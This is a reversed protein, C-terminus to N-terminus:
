RGVDCGWAARPSGRRSFLDRLLLRCLAVCSLRGLARVGQWCCGWGLLREQTRVGVLLWWSAFPDRAVFVRGCGDGVAADDCFHAALRSAKRVAPDGLVEM